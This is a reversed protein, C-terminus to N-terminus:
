RISPCSISSPFVGGFYIESISMLLIFIIPFKFTASFRNGCSPRAVIEAFPRSISMRIEDTGVIFPSLKASLSRSGLLLGFFKFPSLVLLSFKDLSLFSSSLRLPMISVEPGVPLPFVVM